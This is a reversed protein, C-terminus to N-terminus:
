VLRRLPMRLRRAAPQPGALRLRWHLSPESGKEGHWCGPWEQPGEAEGAGLCCQSTRSKWSIAPCDKTKFVDLKCLVVTGSNM